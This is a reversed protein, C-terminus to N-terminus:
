LRKWRYGVGWVTEIFGGMTKIKKRLRLITNDVSRDGDIYNEGWLTDLLYGRSFVRGANSVLLHLLAFETRTLDIPEDSVTVAYREPDLHLEDVIILTHDAQRQRDALLTHEILERRRLMAHARALLERMSFPKTLYDDAGVELGLVRDFEADRATLMLVPVASVERLKRLVDLGNIGPLMWDLIILSFETESALQLATEGHTVHTLQYNAAEFERAIVAALDAADEVLLIHPRPHPPHNSM